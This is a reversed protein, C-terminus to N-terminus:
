YSSASYVSLMVFKVCIKQDELFMAYHIRQAEQLLIHLTKFVRKKVYLMGYYNLKM